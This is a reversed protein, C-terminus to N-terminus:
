PIKFNKFADPGPQTAPGSQPQSTSSATDGSWLVVMGLTLVAVAVAVIRYRM